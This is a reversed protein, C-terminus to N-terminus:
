NRQLSEALKDLRGRLSADIVTDGARIVAGGLVRADVRGTLNVERDFKRQLASRLTEAQEDGLEYATVVEVELVREAEAKREEFQGRIEDIIDLRKNRALLGVLNRAKDNLEDGCLEALRHAKAQAALDPSDLLRRVRPEVSAAALLALMRSWADLARDSKALDFVANAYPRALTALEAM